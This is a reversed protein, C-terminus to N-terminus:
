LYGAEAGAACYRGDDSVALRRGGFDLRSDFECVKTRTVVDFIHIRKEFEGAALVNGSYSAALHRIASM